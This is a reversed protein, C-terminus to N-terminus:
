FQKDLTINNNNKNMEELDYDVIIKISDVDANGIFINRLQTKIGEGPSIKQVSMEKITDGGAVVKLTSNKKSSSLGENKVSINLSMRSGKVNGDASDLVLDPHPSIEYLSNIYKPIEKGLSLGCASVSYMINNPNESHDFGLAHLIEHLAVKPESCSSDRRLVIEGEEIIHFKGSKIIKSPGGEGAVFLDGKMLDSSNCRMKIEPNTEDEYFSLITRNELIELAGRADREKESMCNGINYSINKTAYRMNQYFQMKSTNGDLTFNSEEESASFDINRYPLFLYTSLIVLIFIFFLFVLFKKIFGGSREQHNEEIEEYNSREM